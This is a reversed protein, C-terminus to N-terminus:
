LDAGFYTQIAVEAPGSASRWRARVIVPLVDYDAAHDTADIAGDLDIDLPMGLEPLVLDERLIEPAASNVPFVIEGVFADEGAVPNLGAIVFGSGPDTNPAGTDDLGYANFRRFINVFANSRMAEVQVRCGEIALTRERTLAQTRCAAVLAQSFGLLAILM